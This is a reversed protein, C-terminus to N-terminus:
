ECTEEDLKNTIKSCKITPHIHSIDDLHPFAEGSISKVLYDLFLTNFCSEVRSLYFFHRIVNQNWKGEQLHCLLQFVIVCLLNM